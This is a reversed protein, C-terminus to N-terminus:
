EGPEAAQWGTLDTLRKRLEALAVEPSVNRSLISHVTQYYARSVDPYKSGAIVSPRAVWADRGESMLLAAQPLKKLLEPTSYLRFITPLYGGRLARRLQVQSGTLRVVLQAAERPHSSYRSVALCFGGLTQARGHSGAPLLAMGTDRNLPYGRNWYRMFAANGSRFVNLSDSETYYLISGPSISGVWRAATRFAEAARPNDVAITRDPTIINGGGSSAQWELANCTLGEYAAGQWIYGWFDKKGEAREGRQIRAAMSELEGWTRPPRRYKYKKLLDARYYLMGVNMYFPLSVLRSKATGNTLMEPLHRGGDADLYPTLDLLHEALAGPWIVDIVFVDPAPDRQNLLRRILAFQDASTGPTPILDVSIGTQRTFEDIADVRLDEGAQPALGMVTLTFRRSAEDAHERCGQLALAVLLAALLSTFSLAGSSLWCTARTTRIKFGRDPRGLHKM